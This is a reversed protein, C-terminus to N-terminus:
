ALGLSRRWKRKFLGRWHTKMMRYKGSEEKSSLIEVNALIERRGNKV